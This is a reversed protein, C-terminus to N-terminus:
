SVRGDIRASCLSIWNTTFLRLSLQARKKALRRAQRKVDARERRLPGMLVPQVVLPIKERGSRRSGIQPRKATDLSRTFLRGSIAREADAWNLNAVPGHVKPDAACLNLLLDYAFLGGKFYTIVGTGFHGGKAASAFLLCKLFHAAAEGQEFALRPNNLGPIPDLPSNM